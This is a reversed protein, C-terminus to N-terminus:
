RRSHRSRVMVIQEVDRGIRIHGLDGRHRLGHAAVLVLHVGKDAEAFDAALLFRVEDGPELRFMVDDFQGRREERATEGVHRPRDQGGVDARMPVAM